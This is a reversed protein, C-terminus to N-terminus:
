IIKPNLINATLGVTFKIWNKKYIEMGPTNIVLNGKKSKKNQPVPTHNLYNGPRAVALDNYV